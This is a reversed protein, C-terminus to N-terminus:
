SDSPLPMRYGVARETHICTPRTAHDGLKRHLNKIFTRVLASGGAGGTGPPVPHRLVFIVPLSALGPISGMLEIGDPGPLILDLLVM